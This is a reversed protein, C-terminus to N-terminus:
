ARLCTLCPKRGDGSIRPTRKMARLRRAPAADNDIFNGTLACGVSRYRLTPLPALSAWAAAHARRKAGKGVRSDTSRPCIRRSRARRTPRRAPRLARAHQRRREGVRAERAEGRHRARPRPVDHLADRGAGQRARGAARGAEGAAHAPGPRFERRSLRAGDRGRAANLQAGRMVMHHVHRKWGIPGDRMALIVTLAHCQTCATAVLDRGDGPPLANAPQACPRRRAALWLAAVLASLVLRRMTVGEPDAARRGLLASALDVGRRRRRALHARRASLAAGGGGRAPRPRDRGQAQEPEKVVEGEVGFADAAKAYDVDPSGLYCTMDRGTKFQRGGFHWIRNRENNYSHNNLVITM